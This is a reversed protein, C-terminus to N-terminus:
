PSPSTSTVPLSLLGPNQMNPTPTFSEDPSPSVSTQASEDMATATSGSTTTSASTDPAPTDTVSPEVGVSTMSATTTSTAPYDLELLVNKVALPATPANAEAPTSPPVDPESSFQLTNTGANLVGDPVHFTGDRWGVYTSVTDTPYGADDLEPTAPQMIGARQGNIWVVLHQGWPLGAEKLALRARTPIGDMQVTFDVGQEIRLPATTIPVNVIREHWAPDQETAPLGALEGALQTKGDAPTVLTDTIAPSSLGTSSQLWELKIRSIGLTNDGCQFILEGAQKMTDAPILLSRQNNMGIGEYFNECLVSSQAAEGPDPLGNTADTAVTGNQWGIRLFGGDKEQFFVTVLLAAGGAPPTIPLDLTAFTTSPMVPQGLWAPTAENASFPLDLTFPQLDQARLLSVFGGSLFFLAFLLLPFVIM